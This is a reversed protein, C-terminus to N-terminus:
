ESQTYKGEFIGADIMGFLQQGQNHVLVPDSLLQTNKQLLNMSVDCCGDRASITRIAM